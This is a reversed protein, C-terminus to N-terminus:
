KRFHMVVAIILIVVAAGAFLAMEEGMTGLGLFGGGSLPTGTPAGTGKPPTGAVTGNVEGKPGVAMAYVTTGDTELAWYQTGNVTDYGQGYGTEIAHDDLVTLAGSPYGSQINSITYGQGAILNTPGSINKSPYITAVM